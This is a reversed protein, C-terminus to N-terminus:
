TIPSRNETVIPLVTDKDVPPLDATGIPPATVGGDPTVLLSLFSFSQM